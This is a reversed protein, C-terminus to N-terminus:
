SNVFEAISMVDEGIADAVRVATAPDISKGKLIKRVTNRHMGLGSSIAEVTMWRKRQALLTRVQVPQKIRMFM